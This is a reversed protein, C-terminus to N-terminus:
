INKLSEDLTKEVNKSEIDELEAIMKKQINKIEQIANEKSAKIKQVKKWLADLLMKQSEEPISRLKECLKASLETPVDLVQTLLANIKDIPTIYTKESNQM